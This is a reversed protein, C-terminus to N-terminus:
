VVAGWLRILSELPLMAAAFKWLLKSTAQKVNNIEAGVSKHTVLSMTETSSTKREIKPNSHLRIRSSGNTIAEDTPKVLYITNTTM